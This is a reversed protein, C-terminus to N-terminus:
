FTPGPPFDHETQQHVKMSRRHAHAAQLYNVAMVAARLLLGKWWPMQKVGGGPVVANGGEGGGPLLLEGLRRREDVLAMVDRKFRDVTYLDGDCEDESDSLDLPAPTTAADDGNAAAMYAAAEANATAIFSDESAADSEDVQAANETKATEAECAAAAAARKEDKVKRAIYPQLVSPLRAGDVLAKYQKIYRQALRRSERAFGQVGGLMSRFDDEFGNMCTDRCTSLYRDAVYSLRDALSVLLEERRRVFAVKDVSKYSSANADYEALADRVIADVKAGFDHLPHRWEAEIEHRMAEIRAGPPGDLVRAVVEGCSFHAALAAHKPLDLTFESAPGDGGTTKCVAAWVEAALAEFGAIPVPQPVRVPGTFRAGLARVETNFADPSYIKHPLAVVDVHFLADFTVHGVELSDWINQLDGMLVRRIDALASDGDHDRVVMVIRVPRADTFVKGTRRLAAAHAFVTEFLEYNAASYRGIDHAWMNVVVVDSLALAFLATRSEFAKAGDGRERSDAGEVDLVVVPPVPAPAPHAPRPAALAAWVGLTTRRRGSRPADLVPFSTGFAANLLTSKGGSQCGVVAVVRYARAAAAAASVDLGGVYAGDADVVQVEAM